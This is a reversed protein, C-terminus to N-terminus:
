MWWWIRGKIQKVMHVVLKEREMMMESM